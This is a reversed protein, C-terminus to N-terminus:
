RMRAIRAPDHPEERQDVYEAGNLAFPIDDDDFENRKASGRSASSSSSGWDDFDGPGSDSGFDAEQQLAKAIREAKEDRYADCVPIERDEPPDAFKVRAFSKDGRKEVGIKASFPQFLFVLIMDERKEPDIRAPRKLAKARSVWRTAKTYGALIKFANEHVFIDQRFWEGKHPGDIVECYCRWFPAGKTQTVQISETIHKVAVLFRGAVTLPPHDDGSRKKGETEHEEPDFM